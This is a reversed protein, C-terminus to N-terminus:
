FFDILVGKVVPAANVFSDIGEMFLAALVDM